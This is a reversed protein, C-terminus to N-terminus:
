YRSCSMGEETKIKRLLAYNYLWGWASSKCGYVPRLESECMEAHPLSSSNNGLDNDGAILVGSSKKFHISLLQRSTM